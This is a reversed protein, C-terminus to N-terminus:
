ASEVAVPRKAMTWALVPDFVYSPATSSSTWTIPGFQEVYRTAWEIDSMGLVACSEALAPNSCWAAWAERYRRLMEPHPHVNMGTSM